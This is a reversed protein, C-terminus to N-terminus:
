TVLHSYALNPEESLMTRMRLCKLSQRGDVTHNLLIIRGIRLTLKLRPVFAPGM